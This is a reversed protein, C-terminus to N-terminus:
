ALLRPHQDVLLQVANWQPHRAGKIDVGAQVGIVRYGLGQPAPDSPQQGIALLGEVDVLYM